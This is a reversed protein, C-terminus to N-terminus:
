DIKLQKCCEQFWLHVHNYDILGYTNLIYISISQNEKYM